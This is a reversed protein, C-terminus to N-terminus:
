RRNASSEMNCSHQTTLHTSFAGLTRAFSVLGPHVHVNMYLPQM